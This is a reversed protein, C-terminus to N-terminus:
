VLSSPSGRATHSTDCQPLVCLCTLSMGPPFLARPCPVVTAGPLWPSLGCPIGRRGVGQGRTDLQPRLGRRHSEMIAGQSARAVSGSEDCAVQGRVGGVM